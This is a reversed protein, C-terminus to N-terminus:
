QVNSAEVFICRCRSTRWISLTKLCQYRMPINPTANHCTRCRNVFWICIMRYKNDIMTTFYNCLIQTNQSSWYSINNSFATKRFQKDYGLCRQWKSFFIRTSKMSRYGLSEFVNCQPTRKSYKITSYDISTCCSTTSGFSSRCQICLCVSTMRAYTFSCISRNMVNVCWQWYIRVNNTPKRYYIFCCWCLRDNMNQYNNPITTHKRSCRYCVCECSCNTWPRNRRSRNDAYIKQITRAFIRCSNDCWCTLSRSSDAWRSMCAYSKNSLCSIMNTFGFPYRHRCFATSM